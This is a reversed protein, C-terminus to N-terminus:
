DVLQAHIDLLAPITEPPRRGFGCETSLGFDAAFKEAAQLRRRSGELGGTHHVLGLYLETEPNLNLGRLPAFYADDNRDRPVPMHMWNVPRSANACIANAFAVCTALNEPEVIHKHGPDGYCLHVGAEVPAPVWSLHRCIRKVSEDLTNSYHLKWGGDHAIIEHAVDWQIALDEAPIAALIVDLDSKLAAEVIPEVMAQQEPAIFSTTPAIATPLSVQFRTGAAITGASRLAAFRAYSRTAPEAYGLGPITVDDPAIADAFGYVPRAGAENSNANTFAPHAAFIGGLWAIWNTRAGTEGDPYRTTRTGIHKALAAFVANEDELGISGVLHIKRKGAM